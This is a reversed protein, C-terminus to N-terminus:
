WCPVLKHALRCRPLSPRKFRSCQALPRHIDMPCCTVVSFTDLCDQGVCQKLRQNFLHWTRQASGRLAGLSVQSASAIYMGPLGINPAWAVDRVWDDHGQIVEEETWKKATEDYGWIRILNDSGGSVLRKQQQM